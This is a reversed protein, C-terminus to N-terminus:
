CHAIASLLSDYTITATENKWYDQYVCMAVPSSIDRTKLELEMVKARLKENEADNEEMKSIYDQM